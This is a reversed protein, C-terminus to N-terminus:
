GIGAVGMGTTQRGEDFGLAVLDGCKLCAHLRLLVGDILQYGLHIM